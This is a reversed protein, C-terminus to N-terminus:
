LLLFVFVYGFSAVALLTLEKRKRDVAQLILDLGSIFLPISSIWLLQNLSFILLLFTGVLLILGMILKM